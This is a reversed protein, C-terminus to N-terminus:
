TGNDHPHRGPFYQRRSLLGDTRGPLHHSHPKRLATTRTSVNEEAKPIDALNGAATAAVRNYPLLKLTLGLIVFIILTAFISVLLKNKRM